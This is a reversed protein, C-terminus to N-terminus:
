KVFLPIVKSVGFLAFLLEWLMRIKIDHTLLHDIIEEDKLYLMTKSLVMRKKSNSGLNFIKGVNSGLCFFLKLHVWLNWISKLPSFLPNDLELANYCSMRSSMFNWDKDSEM